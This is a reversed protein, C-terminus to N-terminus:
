LKEEYGAHKVKDISPLAVTGQSSVPSNALVLALLGVGLIGLGRCAYCKLVPKMQPISRQPEPNGGSVWLSKPILSMRLCMRILTNIIKAAQQATLARSPCPSARNVKLSGCMPVKHLMM